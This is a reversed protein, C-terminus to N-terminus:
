GKQHALRIREVYEGYGQQALEALPIFKLSAGNICFRLGGRDEPGDDFVHGLHSDGGQSRVEIRHMGHSYDEIFAVHSPDVPTTFSPWGCGSDFKDASTFLPEGTVIDVYLGMEKQNWYPHTFPRETAAEQTVQYELPTLREKIVEVPPKTYKLKNLTGFSIHCYGNPHHDLYDQHYGEAPYFHKLRAVEVVLPKKYQPRTEEMVKQIVALDSDVEYYIGTRYQTGRDNGQRNLVTPDIIMMYHTLLTYLTVVEPDYLVKVTEAHGTMGTCVQEYTPSVTDGNAYGSMADAVGPIRSMYAEVGWFCGGALYITRLHQKDFTIGVNPNAPLPSRHQNM